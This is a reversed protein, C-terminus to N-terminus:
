DDSVDNSQLPSAASWCFWLGVVGVLWGAFRGESGGVIYSVVISILVAAWHRSVPQGVLHDAHRPQHAAPGSQPNDRHCVAGPSM